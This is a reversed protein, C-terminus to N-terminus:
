RVSDNVVDADAPSPAVGSKEFRDMLIVARLDWFALHVLADAVTWGHSLPRRLEAEGLRGVLAKMRECERANKAQFTRDMAVPAEERSPTELGPYDDSPPLAIASRGSPTRHGAAGSSAKTAPTAARMPASSSIARSTLRCMTREFRDPWSEC